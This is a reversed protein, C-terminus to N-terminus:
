ARLLGDLRADWRYGPFLRETDERAVGLSGSM